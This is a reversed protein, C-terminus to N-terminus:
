HTSPKSIPFIIMELLFGVDNIPFIPLVLVAPEESLTHHVCVIRILYEPDLILMVPELITTFQHFVTAQLM